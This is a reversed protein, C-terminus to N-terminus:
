EDDDEKEYTLMEENEIREILSKDIEVKKEKKPKHYPAETKRSKLIIRNSSDNDYMFSFKERMKQNIISQAKIMKLYKKRNDLVKEFVKTDENQYKKLNLALNDIYIETNQITQYINNTIDLIDYLEVNISKRKNFLKSTQKYLDNIMEDFENKHNLYRKEVENFKTHEYDYNEKLKTLEYELIEKMQKLDKLNYNKEEIM